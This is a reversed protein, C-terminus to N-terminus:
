DLEENKRKDYRQNTRYLFYLSLSMVMAGLIEGIWMQASNGAIVVGLTM